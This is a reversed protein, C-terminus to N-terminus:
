IEKGPQKQQHHRTREMGLFIHIVAQECLLHHHLITDIFRNDPYAAASEREEAIHSARGPMEKGIGGPQPKGDGREQIFFM